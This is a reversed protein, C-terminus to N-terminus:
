SNKDTYLRKRLGKSRQTSKKHTQKYQEVWASAYSFGRITLFLEAIMKLLNDHVEIDDVDFAATAISWHFQVEENAILKALFKDKLGTSTAPSSLESLYLRVGEELAYFVQFTTEKVHWLGGRDILNTWEEATGQEPGDREAVSSEALVLQMLCDAIDGKKVKQFVHRVVYGAAYRLANGELISVDETIVNECSPIIYQEKVLDKFIIDTLHQYLAPTPTTSAQQLLTTWRTIFKSSSRVTFYQQWIRERNFLRKGRPFVFATQLDRLLESTFVEKAQNNEERSCWEKLSKASKLACAATVSGTSFSPDGLVANIAKLLEM